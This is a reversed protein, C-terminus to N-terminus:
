PAAEEVLSSAVVDQMRPSAVEGKVAQVTRTAAVAVVYGVEALSTAGMLTLDLAVSRWM